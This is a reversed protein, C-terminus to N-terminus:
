GTILGNLYQELEERAKRDAQTVRAIKTYVNHLLILRENKKESNDLNSWQVEILAKQQNCFEMISQVTVEKTLVKNWKDFTAKEEESLEKIGRQELLKELTKHM